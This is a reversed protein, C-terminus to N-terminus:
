QNNIVILKGRLLVNSGKQLAYFYSGSEVENLVIENGNLAVIKVKDGM